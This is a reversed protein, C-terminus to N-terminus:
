PHVVSFYVGCQIKKAKLRPKMENSVDVTMTVPVSIHPPECPIDNHSTLIPTHYAALAVPIEPGM